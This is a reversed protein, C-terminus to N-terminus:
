LGDWGGDGDDGDADESLAALAGMLEDATRSADLLPVEEINGDCMMRVAEARERSEFAVSPKYGAYSVVYIHKM